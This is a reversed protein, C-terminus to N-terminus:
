NLGPTNIKYIIYIKTNILQVKIQRNNLAYMYNELKQLMKVVM